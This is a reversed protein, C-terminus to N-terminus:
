RCQCCITRIIHAPEPGAGFPRVGLASRHAARAAEVEGFLRCGFRGGFRDVHSVGHIIVPYRARVQELIRLQRGGDIMYNESIVEVFDVPVDGTWFIMM